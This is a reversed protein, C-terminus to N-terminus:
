QDGGLRGSLDRWLQFRINPDPDDGLYVGSFYLPGAPFLNTGRYKDAVTASAAVVKKHKRMKAADAPAFSALVFALGIVCAMLKLVLSPMIVGWSRKTVRGNSYGLLRAACPRRSGTEIVVRHRFIAAPATYRRHWGLLRRIFERGAFVRPSFIRYISDGNAAGVPDLILWDKSWLRTRRRCDHAFVAM